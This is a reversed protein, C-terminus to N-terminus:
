NKTIREIKFGYKIYAGKRTANVLTTPLIGTIEKIEKKNYSGKGDITFLTMSDKNSMKLHEINHCLQLPKLKKQVREIDEWLLTTFKTSDTNFVKYKESEKRLPKLIESVKKSDYKKM